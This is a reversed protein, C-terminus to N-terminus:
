RGEMIKFDYMEPGEKPSRGNLLVSRRVIYVALFPAIEWCELIKGFYNHIVKLASSFTHNSFRPM